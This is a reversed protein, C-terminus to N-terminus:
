NLVTQLEAVKYEKLYCNFTTGNHLDSIIEIKGGNKEIMNKVLHLGIGKGEGKSSLRSFPKFLKNKYKLMDIGSGNDSISLIVYDDQRETKIKIELSRKESRYKIANGILNRLISVLFAEVFRIDKVDFEKLLLGNVSKFALEYDVMVDELVKEIELSKVIFNNGSQIEIVEVMSKVTQELKEISTDVGSIIQNRQEDSSNTFINILGRLNIIPTKLDHAAMYVFNDLTQNLKELEDIKMRLIKNAEEIQLRSLKKDTIDMVVAYFGSVENNEIQPNYHIRYFSNRGDPFKVEQEFEQTEGNLAKIMRPMLEKVAEAGIIFDVNKDLYHEQPYGFASSYAKNVFKYKLDKSMFSILFPISDTILRIQRERQELARKAKYEENVDTVTAFWREVKGSSDKLPVAHSLVWKIEGIKTKIRHYIRYDTGTKLSHEWARATEELDDPLLVDKWGGAATEELTLGTLEFWRHNYFDLTGDAKATWVIHPISESLMRFKEENNKLIQEAIKQNHIDVCYGIWKRVEGNEDFLPIATELFYRSEGNRYKIRYEVKFTTKTGLSYNWADVVNPRDEPHIPEMWNEMTIEYDEVGSFKRWGEIDDVVGESNATWIYQTTAKVLTRFEEERYIIEKTREQVKVELQNNVSKLKEQAETLQNYAVEIQKRKTILDEQILVQESINRIILSTGLLKEDPTYINTFRLDFVSNEQETTDLKYFTQYDEGELARDFYKKIDDKILTHLEPFDLISMGEEINMSFIEEAFSRFSNNFALLRYEEDVALIYDKSGNIIGQLIKKNHLSKNNEKNDFSNPGNKGKSLYYHFFLGKIKKFYSKIYQKM